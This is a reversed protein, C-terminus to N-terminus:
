YASRQNVHQFEKRMTSFLGKNSFITNEVTAPITRLTPLGRGLGNAQCISSFNTLSPPGTGVGLLETNLCLSFPAEAISVQNRWVGGGVGFYVHLVLVQVLQAM